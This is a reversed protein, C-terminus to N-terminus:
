TAYISCAVPGRQLVEKMINEEGKVAGYEKVSYKNFKEPIRCGFEDCTQCISKDTCPNGNTWGRAQYPSCTEDTIGNEHIYAYATSADGGECGYDPKECSVLVQPAINIDPWEANRMIKIRDSM